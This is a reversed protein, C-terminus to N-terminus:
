EDAFELLLDDEIVFGEPLRLRLEEPGLAFMPDIEVTVSPSGDPGRPVDIGAKELWRIYKASMDARCRAPSDAGEANKVPSFEDERACVLNVVTNANPLVDFIFKEFKYANPKSPKVTQGNKDCFPVKKHAVHIPLHARAEQELFDTSFVHIAISGYRLWLEGDDTTRRKQEDTLETYEVMGHVGDRVVVVGLGEDPDRKACVKLSIDANRLGHLGIFAPDAVEILPNDVQFYFLTTLGRSKMDDIMGNNLLASLTGGHGDPSFFIQGPSELIVKGDADLAPWKGQMFFQVNDPELGFHKHQEFHARTAADNSESTMIYFPVPKGYREGLARIKHAHIHFLSVETLPGIQYAGKPGDFGLRSGQGGAVLIVGVKGDQLLEEGHAWCQEREDGELEISEAPVFDSPPAAEAKDRLMAAMRGMDDFNLVTIQSLLDSQETKSLKDWFCLVHEQHHRTLLERAADYNM